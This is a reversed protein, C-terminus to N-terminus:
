GALKKMMDALNQLGALQQDANVVPNAEFTVYPSWRMLWSNLEEASMNGTVGYGCDEGSCIGFDTMAGSALDAKVMGLMMMQQKIRGEQDQPLMSWNITWLVLWKAM